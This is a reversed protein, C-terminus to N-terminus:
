QAGGGFRRVLGQDSWLDMRIDSGRTTVFQLAEADDKALFDQVQIIRGDTHRTIVRYTQAQHPGERAASPEADSLISEWGGFRPTTALVPLSPCTNGAPAGSASVNTHDDLATFM